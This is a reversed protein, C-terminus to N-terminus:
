PWLILLFQDRIRIWMEVRIDALGSGFHEPNMVKDADSMEGLKM